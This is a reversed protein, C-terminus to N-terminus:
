EEKLLAIEDTAKYSIGRERLLQMIFSCSNFVENSLELAEL